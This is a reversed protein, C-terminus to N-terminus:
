HKINVVETIIDQVNKRENSAHATIRVTIIIIIESASIELMAFRWSRVATNKGNQM